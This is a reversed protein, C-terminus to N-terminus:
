DEKGDLHNIAMTSVINLVPLSLDGLSLTVTVM